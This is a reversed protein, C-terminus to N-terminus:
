ADDDLLLVVNKGRRGVDRVTRGTVAADLSRPSLGPGLIDPFPVSTAVIRRGPLHRRLDAAITEAEPLEPMASSSAGA